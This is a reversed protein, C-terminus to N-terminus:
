KQAACSQQIQTGTKVYLSFTVLIQTKLWERECLLFSIIRMLYRKKRIIPSRTKM